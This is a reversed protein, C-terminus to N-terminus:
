RPVSSGCGATRSGTAAEDGHAVRNGLRAASRRSANSRRPDRRRITCRRWCPDTLAHGSARVSTSRSRSPGAPRTRSRWWGSIQGDLVPHAHHDPQRCHVNLVPQAAIGCDHGLGRNCLAPLQTRVRGFPHVPEVGQLLSLAGGMWLRSASSCISLAGPAARDAPQVPIRARSRDQFRLEISRSSRPM